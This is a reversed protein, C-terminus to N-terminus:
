KSQHTWQAFLSTNVKVEKQAVHILWLRSFLMALMSAAAAGTLGFKWTLIVLLGVDVLVAMSYNLVLKMQNGTMILLFGPAGSWAKILRCLILLILAGHGIEFGAGFMGLVAQGFVAMGAGAVLTPWFSLGAVLGMLRQLNNLDGKKFMPAIEPNAVSDSAKLFMALMDSAALVAAYIGAKKSGMFAGVIFLDARYVIIVFGTMLLIPLSAKLWKVTRYVAEAARYGDPLSSRFKYLLFALIVGHVMLVTAVGHDASLDHFIFIMSGFFVLMLLPPLFLDIFFSVKFKKEAEMAGTTVNTLAALPTLLMGAAFLIRHHIDLPSFLFIIVWSILVVAGGVVLTLQQARNILGKAKGWENESIYEPLFRELSTPFGLGALYALLTATSLVISYFGFDEAGMYRALLVQILYGAIVALIRFRCYIAVNKILHTRLKAFDLSPQEAAQHRQAHIRSLRVKVAEGLGTKRLWGKDVLDEIVQIAKSEEQDAIKILEALSQEKKQALHNVIKAEVESLRHFDAWHHAEVFEHEIQGSPLHHELIARSTRKEISSAKDKDM